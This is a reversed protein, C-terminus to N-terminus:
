LKGKQSRTWAMVEKDVSISDVGSPLLDRPPPVESTLHGGVALYANVSSEYAHRDMWWSRGFCTLLPPYYAMEPFRGALHKAIDRLQKMGIGPRRSMRIVQPMNEVSSTKLSYRAVYAATTQNVEDSWLHGHEWHKTAHFLGRERYQHGFLLVHWHPRLTRGGYEGCCFYRVRGPTDKRLRAIYREFHTPDLRDPVRDESYTLTIFDTSTHATKELLLRLTWSM